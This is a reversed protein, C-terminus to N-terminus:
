FYRLESETQQIDRESGRAQADWQACDQKLNDLQTNSNSNELLLTQEESHTRELQSIHLFISINDLNLIM